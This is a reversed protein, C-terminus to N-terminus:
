RDPRSASRSMVATATKPMLTGGKQSPTIRTMKKATLRDQSGAVPM